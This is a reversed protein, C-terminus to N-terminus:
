RAKWRNLPSDAWPGPMRMAKQSTERTPKRTAARRRSPRAPRPVQRRRYRAPMKAQRASSTARGPSPFLWARVSFRASLRQM